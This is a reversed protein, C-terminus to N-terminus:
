SSIIKSLVEENIVPNYKSRLKEEAEKELKKRYYNKYDETISNKVDNFTLQKEPRIHYCKILAYQSQNNEDEFEFPGTVEAEKLEFGVKGFYPNEDQSFPKIEGNKQKIYTKVLYHGTVKEFPIGSNIKELVKDATEKAPFVMVFLNRKELQYYLTSENEKYFRNLAEDSAEPIKAEIEAKNYLYVLQNKLALNDTYANFVNKRLDLSNAKKVILDTRIAELIYKKVNEENIKDVNPMILVNNLLRLLEKYDLSGSNYTLIIKNDGNELANNFTKQYEGKYFDPIGSWKVIQKLATENWKLSKDDILEKKDKEYEDLSTEAYGKKLDSIIQSKVSDFPEIHIEKIDEIKVISFADDSNLVGVDNKNLHFIINSVPDSMSQKWNVSPM